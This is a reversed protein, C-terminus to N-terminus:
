DAGPPYLDARQVVCSTHTQCHVVVYTGQWELGFACTTTRPSLTARFSVDVWPFTYISRNIRSTIASRRTEHAATELGILIRCGQTCLYLSFISNVEECGIRLLMAQFRELGVYWVYQRPHM